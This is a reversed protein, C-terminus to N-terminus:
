GIIFSTMTLSGAVPKDNFYAVTEGKGKLALVYLLPLFHEPTPVALRAAEGLSQYDALEDHRERDILEKFLTNAAIAWAFGFPRNFDRAAAAASRSWASITCWTAAAWSSSARTGRARGTGPGPRLARRATKTADLSLQVVPLDAAPFM